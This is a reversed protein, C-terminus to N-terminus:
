DICVEGKEEALGLIYDASVGYFRCLAILRDGSIDSKGNEINSYQAQSIELFDAVERQHLNNMIRLDKIRNKM